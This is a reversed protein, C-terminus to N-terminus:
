RITDGAKAIIRTSVALQPTRYPWTLRLVHDRLVVIVKHAAMSNIAATIDARDSTVMIGAVTGSKYVLAIMGHM